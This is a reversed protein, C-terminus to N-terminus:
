QLRSLFVCQEARRRRTLGRYVVGGAKNWKPFEYSAAVFDGRNVLRLLTSIQLNGPGCNFAFDLLAAAQEKTIGIKVIRELSNYTKSLDAEFLKDAQEQSLDPYTIRLWEDAEESSFGLKAMTQRKTTRSLLHGWGITPFGAPDWYAKLSCSEFPKALKEALVLVQQKEDPYILLSM